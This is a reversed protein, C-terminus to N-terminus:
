ELLKALAKREEDFEPELLTPCDQLSKKGKDLSFAFSFCTPSGCKKCNTGPLLKQLIATGVRPKEKKGGLEGIQTVKWEIKQYIAPEPYAGMDYLSYNMFEVPEEQICSWVAKGIVEPNLGPTDLDREGPKCLLNVISVIQKNFRDIAELPLNYLYPTPAQAGVIQRNEDVGNQKLLLLSEGPLHGTSERGCLVIYRINPNAIVNCIMKEMGINETQLTGALAAGSDIGAMVLETIELPTRFDFDDLIACVVVPSFDNGRVYRGQEPPYGDPTKVKLM